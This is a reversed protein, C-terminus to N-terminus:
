ILSPTIPMKDWVDIRLIHARIVLIYTYVVKLAGNAQVRVM